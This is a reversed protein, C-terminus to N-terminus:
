SDRVQLKACRAIGQLGVDIFTGYVLQLRLLDPCHDGVSILGLHTVRRNNALNLSRLAPGLAETVQCLDEDKVQFSVSFLLIISNNYLSVAACGQGTDPQCPSVLLVLCNRICM